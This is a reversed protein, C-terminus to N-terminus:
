LPLVADRAEPTLQLCQWRPGATVSTACCGKDGCDAPPVAVQTMCDCLYCLM